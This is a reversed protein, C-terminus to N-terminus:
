APGAITRDRGLADVLEMTIQNESMTEEVLM